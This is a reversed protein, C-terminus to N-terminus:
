MKSTGQMNLVVSAPHMNLLLAARHSFPGKVGRVLLWRFPRTLAGFPQLTAPLGIPTVCRCDTEAAYVEIPRRARNRLRRTM